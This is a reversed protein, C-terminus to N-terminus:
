ASLKAVMKVDGPAVFVGLGGVILVMFIFAYVPILIVHASERVGRLNLWGLILVGAVSLETAMPLMQPYASTLARIGATVSVAVTLIYDLILASAGLISTFPNLNYKAVIYAGGGEPYAQV